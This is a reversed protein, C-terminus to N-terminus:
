TVRGREKKKKKKKQCYQPKSRLAECKSPLNEGAQTVEGIRKGRTIKSSKRHQKLKNKATNPNSSLAECNRPLHEVV